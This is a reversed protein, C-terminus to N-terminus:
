LEYMYMFNFMNSVYVYCTSRQGPPPHVFRRRCGKRPPGGLGLRLDRGKDLHSGREPIDNLFRAGGWPHEGRPPHRTQPAPVSPAKDEPGKPSAPCPALPRQGDRAASLIGAM